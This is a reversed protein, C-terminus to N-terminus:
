PALRIREDSKKDPNARYLLLTKGILQVLSCRTKSPISQAADQKPLTSTNIIKVKILEHATLAVEIADIVTETLGDKGIFVIPKLEHGLKRLQKKQNNNLPAPTEAADKM